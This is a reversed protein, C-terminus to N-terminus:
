KATASTAVATAKKALRKSTKHAKKVQKKAAKQSVAATKSVQTSAVPEAALALISGGLFAALAAAIISKKM